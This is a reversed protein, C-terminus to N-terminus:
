KGELRYEAVWKGSPLGIMETKINHGAKRLEFIRAGVRLCNFLHLGRIPTLANGASLHKLIQENQSKM